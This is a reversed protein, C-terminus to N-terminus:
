SNKQIEVAAKRYVVESCNNQLGSRVVVHKKENKLFIKECMKKALSPLINLRCGKKIKQGAM